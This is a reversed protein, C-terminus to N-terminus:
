IAVSVRESLFTKLENYFALVETDNAFIANRLGAAYVNVDGRGSTYDAGIRVPRTGLNAVPRSHAISHYLLSGSPSKRWLELLTDTINFAVFEPGTGSYSGLASNLIFASPDAGTGYRTLRIYGGSGTSTTLSFGEVDVGALTSMIACTNTLLNIVAFGSFGGAGAADLASWPMDAYHSSNAAMYTGNFLADHPTLAGVARCSRYDYLPSPGPYSTGLYYASFLNERSVHDGVWGLSNDPATAGARIRRVGQNLIVTM